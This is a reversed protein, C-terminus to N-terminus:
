WLGRTDRLTDLFRFETRLRGVMEIIVLPEADPSAKEIEHIVSLVSKCAEEIYVIKQALDRQRIDWGGRAPKEGTLKEYFFDVRKDDLKAM